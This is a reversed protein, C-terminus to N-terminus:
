HSRPQWIALPLYRENGRSRHGTADAEGDAAVLCSKQGSLNEVSQLVIDRVVPTTSMGFTM